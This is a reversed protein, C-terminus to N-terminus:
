GVSVALAEEEDACALSNASNVQQNLLRLLGVPCRHYEQPQPLVTTVLEYLGLGQLPWEHGSSVEM